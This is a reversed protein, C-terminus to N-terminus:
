WDRSLGFGLMRGIPSANTTDFPTDTTGATRIAMPKQNLVNNAILSLIVGPRGDGRRFLPIRADLDLTTNGRVAYAPVFRNDEVPGSYNAFASLSFAGAGYTLGSRLRWRPPNYIIGALQTAPLAPTLKQQSELYTGSLQATLSGGAELRSRYRLQFDVGHITQDAVNRTRNDVLTVVSGPNYANGAYNVLGMQADAIVSSQLSASPNQTLLSAYGLTTFASAITGPIPQVARDKYHVDFYSAELSFGSLWAPHFAFGLNVSTAREPKLDPNGGVVYMVTTGAPGAGYSTAPLLYASYAVYQEYLTPAKFSKGWSGKLSLDAYPEYLLAVKPTALRAMGPYDEYRGAGSLILRHIGTIEQDAGVLPVSIEGFGYYSDRSRDFGPSAVGNIASTYALRSGRWGTGVALHVLGGPLRFLAGDANIEASSTTGCYCGLTQTITAPPATYLSHFRSNDQGYSGLLKILWNGVPKIDLEPAIAFSEVVPTWSTSALGAASTVGTVITSWRKDYNADAKFEVSDGLDQHGSLLVAQRQMSPYLTANGPLSGSYSRQSATVASNNAFDYTLFAGGGSWRTGAVLDAQQNFNGGDTSAGIRGSTTVGEFEKRLIVNVVGAVADSGYLASAGDTLVDIHDVAAVPIASIDVGSLYGDYPMRHGNLLTLTADVGLGRLNVSSASNLNYNNIGGGFGVGPNQGGGFNQPISRAVEGLDTQGADEMDQRSVMIVPAIVPGGRIHTGTVLIDSPASAAVSSAQQSRGQILVAGDRFSAALDSEQLLQDLARKLVFSGHLAPAKRGAVMQPTFIVEVGAQRGVERLSTGLDQAPLDLALGKDEEQAMALQPVGALMTTGLFIAAITGRIRM